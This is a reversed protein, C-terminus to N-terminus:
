IWHIDCHMIHVGFELLSPPFRTTSPISNYIKGINLYTFFFIMWKKRIKHSRIINWICYHIIKPPIWKKGSNELFLKDIDEKTTNWFSIKYNPTNKSNGIYFGVDVINVNLTQNYILLITILIPIKISWINLHLWKLM